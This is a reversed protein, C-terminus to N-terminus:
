GVRRGLLLSRGEAKLDGAFGLSHYLALAGLNVEDVDLEVRACGRARAREIAAEVLARGLGSRRARERVFVDEIWCDPSSTWVSWRFRVQCVGEPEDGGAAVLLFEGDDGAAIREVSALIGETAPKANGFSDRFEALLEAVRDLEGPAAIWVRPDPV